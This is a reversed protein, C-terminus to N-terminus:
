QKQNYWTIFEIIALWVCHKIDKESNTDEPSIQIEKNPVRIECCFKDIQWHWMTGIKLIVSMLWDWSSHYSLDSPFKGYGNYFWMGNNFKIGMFEAILKNGQEVSKEIETEM